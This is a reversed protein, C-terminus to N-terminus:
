EKLSDGYIEGVFHMMYFFAFLQEKRSRSFSKIIAFQIDRVDEGMQACTTNDQDM